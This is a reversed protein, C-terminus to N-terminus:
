AQESKYANSLFNAITPIDYFNSADFKLDEGEISIRDIALDVPVGVDINNGSSDSLCLYSSHVYPVGDATSEVIIACSGGGTREGITKYGLEKLVSPLLNGCSFAYHSTLIGFNFDFQELEEADKQDYRGDLNVDVTYQDISRYKSFTDNEEQYSVAKNFLGVIGNLAATSGGGNSTMDLVYNTAGDEKAKYFTSRIFAYTDTEVPEKDSKGSYFNNWGNYDVDFSDFNVIATKTADDFHYFNPNAKYQEDTIGFKQKKAAQFVEKDAHSINNNKIHEGIIAKFDEVTAAKTAAESFVSSSSLIGTHGGDDLGSFLAYVGEYYAEKSTSLLYEKIKPYYRELLGNLGLSVLNNDGFLLQSTYGRLNDFVFCLESYNYEALDQPRATSYDDLVEYYSDAFYKTSKEVNDILGNGDIVYIDKGNYQANYYSIGGAVKSLFSLPVYVEEKDGKVDIGYNTLLVTRVSPTTMGSGTRKLFYQVSSSKFDPHSNFAVIGYGTFVDTDPDFAIFGGRSAFKITNNEKTVTVTTNFFETFYASPEVYPVNPLDNYFRLKIAKDIIPTAKDAGAKKEMSRIINVDKEQYDIVAPKSSESSKKDNSCCCLTMCLLTSVIIFSKKQM